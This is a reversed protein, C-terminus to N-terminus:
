GCPAPNRSSRIARAHDKSSGPARSRRPLRRKATPWSPAPPVSHVCLDIPRYRAIRKPVFIGDDVFHVDAGEVVAIVVARAIEAPEGALQLVDLIETDVGDPQQGEIRRGAAVVAVVNGVVVVDVGLVARPVVEACEDLLGM